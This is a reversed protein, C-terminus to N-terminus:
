GLQAGHQAIWLADVDGRDLVQEGGQRREADVIHQDLDVAALNRDEVAACRHEDLREVPGADDREPHLPAIDTDDLGDADVAAGGPGLEMGIVAGAELDLDVELARGDAALEIGG